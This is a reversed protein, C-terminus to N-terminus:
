KRRAERIKLYIGLIVLVVGIVIAAIRVASLGGTPTVAPAVTGFDAEPPLFQAVDFESLDVPGPVLKTVDWRVQQVTREMQVDEADYIGSDEYYSSLLPMGEFEGDYECRHRQWFKKGSVSWDQYFTDKVVWSERSLRVIWVCFRDDAFSADDFSDNKVRMRVTLEVFQEERDDTYRASEVFYDDGRFYPAKRFFIDEMLIPGESFPATDFSLAEFGITQEFLRRDRHTTLSYFRNIPDDKSLSYGKEPTLLTVRKPYIVRANQGQNRWSFKIQEDVRSFDGDRTNYRVTFLRESRLIPPGDLPVYTFPKEAATNTFTKKTVDMRINRYFDKVMSYAEAYKKIIGKGEEDLKSFIPDNFDIRVAVGENGKCVIVLVFILIFFCTSTKM